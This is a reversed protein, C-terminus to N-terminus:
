CVTAYLFLHFVAFCPKNHRFSNVTETSVWIDDLFKISFIRRMSGGIHCEICRKYFTIIRAWEQAYYISGIRYLLFMVEMFILRLMQQRVFAIRWWFCITDSSLVQCAFKWCLSINLLAYFCIFLFRVFAVEINMYRAWTNVFM